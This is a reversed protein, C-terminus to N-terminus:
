YEKWCKPCYYNNGRYFLGYIIGPLLGCLFLFILVIIRGRPKKDMIGYFDCNSCQKFFISNPKQDLSLAKVVKDIDIDKTDKSM